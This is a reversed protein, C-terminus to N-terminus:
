STGILSIRMEALHGSLRLAPPGRGKFVFTLVVLTIKEASLQYIVSQAKEVKEMFKVPLEDTRMRSM